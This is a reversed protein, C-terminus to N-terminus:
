AIIINEMYDDGGQSPKISQHCDAEDVECYEPINDWNDQLWGIMKRRFQLADKLLEDRLNNNEGDSNSDIHQDNNRGVTKNTMQSTGHFTYKHDCYAILTPILYDDMLEKYIGSHSPNDEILKNFLTTGVIPEIRTKQTRLVIPKLKTPDINSNIFGYREWAKVDLFYAEGAM